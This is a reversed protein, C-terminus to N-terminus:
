EYHIRPDLVRYLVDALLNGIMTLLAFILTAGMILTYDSRQVAQLTLRGMGNWAFIQEVLFAGGFLEPITLGVLTILPIMANRFAHSYVVARDRLGKARATLIYDQRIVELMSSRVYRTWSAIQVLALSLVPLVMHEIRDLIGADTRLDRMGGIPLAPLGWEQFKVAFLIILLLALWFSPLAYAAVSGITTLHDFLSNHRTASLVGLPVALALAVLLAAGTLLLTNPLVGLIRDLVPTSNTMSIGLDGRLVHGLWIVYREPWPEDLGLNRKIREIDEPRMRPNFQYGTVPSGPVLNVIAFTLFTIGLLLPPIQLLRLLILRGM